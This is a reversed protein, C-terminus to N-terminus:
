DWTGPPRAGVLEGHVHDIETRELHKRIELVVIAARSHVEDVLDRRRPIFRAHHVATRPFEDGDRAPLVLRPVEAAHGVPRRAIQHDREIKERRTEARASIVGADVGVTRIGVVVGGGQARAFGRELGAVAEGDVKNGAATQGRDERRGRGALSRTALLAVGVTINVVASAVLADNREARGVRYSLYARTADIVLVAGLLVFAYWHAQVDGGGSRLRLVAEFGIWVAM